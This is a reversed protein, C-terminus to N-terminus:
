IVFCSSTRRHLCYGKFTYGAAMSHQIQKALQNYSKEKQGEMYCPLHGNNCKMRTSIGYGKLRSTYMSASIVKISRKIKWCWESRRLLFSPGFQCIRIRPAGVIETRQFTYLCKQICYCPDLNSHGWQHSDWPCRGCFCDARGWTDWLRLLSWLGRFRKHNADSPMAVGNAVYAQCGWKYM